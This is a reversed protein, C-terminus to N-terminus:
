WELSTTGQGFSVLIDHKSSLGFHDTYLIEHLGDRAEFNLPVGDYSWGRRDIMITHRGESITWEGVMRRDGLEIEASGKLEGDIYVAVEIDVYFENAVSM